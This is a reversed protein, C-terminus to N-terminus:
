HFNNLTIFFNRRLHKFFKNRQFEFHFLMFYSNQKMGYKSIHLCSAANTQNYNVNNKLKKNINNSHHYMFCWLICLFISLTLYQFHAVYFMFHCTSWVIHSISFWNCVSFFIHISHRDKIWHKMILLFYHFLSLLSINVNKVCSLCLSLAFLMFCLLFFCLFM